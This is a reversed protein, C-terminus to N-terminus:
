SCEPVLTEVQEPQVVQEVQVVQEPPVAAEVSGLQELAALQEPHGLPAAPVVRGRQAVREPFGLTELAKRAVLVM